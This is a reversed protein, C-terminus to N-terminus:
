KKEPHYSVVLRRCGSFKEIQVRQTYPSFLDEIEDDSMYHKIVHHKSGDPLTREQLHNGEEDFLGALSNEGPLQDCFLVVANEMLCEHLGQLFADMRSRPVHSLWDIAMAADFDGTVRFLDYADAQKLFVKDWPLKKKGAEGLATENFDTALISKVFQAVQETWFCPGCAIELVTRDKMKSRICDFVPQLLAVKQPDEYGMSRDYFSARKKYYNQMEKIM